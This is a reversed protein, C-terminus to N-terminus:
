KFNNIIYEVFGLNKKVVTTTNDIARKPKMLEGFLDMIKTMNIEGKVEDEDDEEDDEEEEEEEEDEKKDEKQSEDKKEDKNDEKMYEDIIKIAKKIKKLKSRDKGKNNFYDLVLNFNM